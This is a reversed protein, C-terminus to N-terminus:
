NEAAAKLHPLAAKTMYLLARQNLDIMQEWDEIANEVVPGLTMVGANNVLIDLRGFRDVTQQVATEASTRDTIDGAIALAKGGEREIEGALADLREKRRAVLAVAAGHQALVRATAQGIGSSAGTVLAVAGTLNKSM